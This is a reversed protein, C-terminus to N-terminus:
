CQLSMGVCVPSCHPMDNIKPGRMVQSCIFVGAKSYSFYEWQSYTNTKSFNGGFHKLTADAEEVLEAVFLLLTNGFARNKLLADNM